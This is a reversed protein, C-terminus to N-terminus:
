GNLSVPIAIPVYTADLLVKILELPLLELPLLAAM